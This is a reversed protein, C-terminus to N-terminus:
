DNKNEESEYKFKPNQSINLHIIGHEQTLYFQEVTM